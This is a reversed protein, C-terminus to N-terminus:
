GLLPQLGLHEGPNWHSTLPFYSSSELYQIHLSTLRFSLNGQAGFVKSKAPGIQSPFCLQIPSLSHNTLLFVKKVPSDLLPLHWRVLHGGHLFLWCQAPHSWLAGLLEGTSSHSVSVM